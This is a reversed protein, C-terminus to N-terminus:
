ENESSKLTCASRERTQSLAQRVDEDGGDFAVAAEYELVARDLLGQREYIEGLRQHAIKRRPPVAGNLLTPEPGPELQVYAELNRRARQLLQESLILETRAGEYLAAPDQPERTLVEAFAQRADQWRERRQYFYGLERWSILSEPNLEVAAELELVAEELRGLQEHILGQTVRAIAPARRRIEAMEAEARETRGGAIMPAESHYRAVSIRAELHDPDLELANEYAALLRKALGLKFFVSVEDIRAVLAEALWFPYDAVTADLRIADEFAEVAEEVRGQTLYVRGLYYTAEAKESDGKRAALLLTEAPGLEQAEFRHIAEQLSSSEPPPSEAQSSGPIGLGVLLTLLPLSRM